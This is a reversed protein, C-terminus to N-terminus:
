INSCDVSNDIIGIPFPIGFSAWNISGIVLPGILVGAVIYALLTPQKLKRLLASVIAAVVIIEAIHVFLM